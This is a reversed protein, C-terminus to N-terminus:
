KEGWEDRSCEDESLEKKAGPKVLANVTETSIEIKFSRFRRNEKDWWIDEM